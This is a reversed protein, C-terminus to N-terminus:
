NLNVIAVPVLYVMDPQAGGLHYNYTVTGSTKTGTIKITRGRHTLSEAPFTIPYISKGQVNERVYFFGPDLALYIDNEATVDTNCAPIGAAAQKPSQKLPHPGSFVLALDFKEVHGNSDKVHLFYPIDNTNELGSVSVYIDSQYDKLSAAKKKIAHIIACGHKAALKHRVKNFINTTYLDGAKIKIINGDIKGKPDVPSDSCANMSLTLAILVTFMIYFARSTNKPKNTLLKM